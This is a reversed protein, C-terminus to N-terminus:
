LTLLYETLICVAILASPYCVGYVIFEKLTFHEKKIDDFLREM